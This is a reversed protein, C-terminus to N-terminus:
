YLTRLTMSIDSSQLEDMGLYRVEDDNASDTLLEAM